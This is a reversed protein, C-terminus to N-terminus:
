VNNWKAEGQRIVAYAHNLVTRALNKWRDGKINYEAKIENMFDLLQRETCYRHNSRWRLNLTTFISSFRSQETYPIIDYYGSASALDALNHRKDFDATRRRLYARIHCEVALGALYHALIFDGTDFHSQARLLNDNAATRYSDATFVM